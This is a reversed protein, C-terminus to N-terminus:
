ASSLFFVAFAWVGTSSVSVTHALTLHYGVNDKGSVDKVIRYALM